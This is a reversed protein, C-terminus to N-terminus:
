SAGDAPTRELWFGPGAYWVQEADADTPEGRHLARIPPPERGLTDLARQLREAAADDRGGICPIFGVPGISAAAFAAGARTVRLMFGWRNAATLPMVLRGGDRLRDLWLPAPHTSGAFVVVADVEGADHTRGDGAIVEVTPWAALNDRAQAALAADYEIAVVRGRPGVIAALVAAYYGTGAGIQLVGEGPQLALGEFAHAWLSPLGNNVGRAADISVLVNHYLWRPDADPTPFPQDPSPLVTWPGPGLFRERPVAAFAEIVARDSLAARLVLDEAFWRRLRALDDAM